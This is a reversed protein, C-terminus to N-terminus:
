RDVVNGEADEERVTVVERQLEEHFTETEVDRYKTVRVEEIVRYRKTVVLVEEVVPVVLTDGEQRVQPPADYEEGVAVREVDVRDTGVDVRAEHPVMEVRKEIVVKGRDVEHVHAVAEEAVLGFSTGQHEDVSLGPELMDGVAGQIVVLDSTSHGTDILAYPVMMTRDGDPLRVVMRAESGQGAMSEFTGVDRGDLSVVRAGPSFLQEDM